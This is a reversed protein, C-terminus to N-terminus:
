ARVVAGQTYSTAPTPHRYISPLMIVNLHPQVLYATNWNISFKEYIYKSYIFSLSKSKGSAGAGDDDDDGKSNKSMSRGGDDGAGGSGATSGDFRIRFGVAFCRMARSFASGSPGPAISALGSGGRATDGTRFIKNHSGLSTRVTVFENPTDRRYMFVGVCIGSASITGGSM